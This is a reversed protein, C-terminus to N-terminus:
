IRDLEAPDLSLILAEKHHKIHAHFKNRLEFVAQSLTYFGAIPRSRAEYHRQVEQFFRELMSIIDSPWGAHRISDIFRPM